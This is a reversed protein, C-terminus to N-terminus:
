RPCAAIPHRDNSLDPTEMTGAEHDWEDALLQHDADSLDVGEISDVAYMRALVYNRYHSFEVAVTAPHSALLQQRLPEYFIADFCYTAPGTRQYVLVPPHGQPDRRTSGGWPTTGDLTYHMAARTTHSQNILVLYAGAVILLLGLIALRLQTPRPM